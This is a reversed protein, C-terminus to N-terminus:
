PLRDALGTKCKSVSINAGACLRNELPKKSSGSDVPIPCALGTKGWQANRHDHDVMGASAFQQQLRALGSATFGTGNAALRDLGGFAASWPAIIRGFFDFTALAM